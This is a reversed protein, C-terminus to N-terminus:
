KENTKISDMFALVRKINERDIHVHLQTNDDFHIEATDSDVIQIQFDDFQLVLTCDNKTAYYTSHAKM